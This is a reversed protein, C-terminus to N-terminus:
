KGISYAGYGAMGFFVFLVPYRFWAGGKNLVEEIINGVAFFFLIFAPFFLRDAHPFMYDGILFYATGLVLAMVLYARKPSDRKVWGALFIFFLVPMGLFADMIYKFYGARLHVYTIKLERSMLPTISRDKFIEGYFPSLPNGTHAYNLLCWPLILAAYVAASVVVLKAAEAMGTKKTLLSYALVLAPFLLILLGNYKTGFAFASFVASAYFWRPNKDAIWGALCYFVASTFLATGIDIKASPAMDFFVGSTLVTIVCLLGATRSAIKRAACYVVLCALLGLFVHLHNIAIENALSMVFMDLMGVIQPYSSFAVIKSLDYITHHQIYYKLPTMIHNLADASTVPLFSLVIYMASTLVILLTLVMDLRRLAPLRYGRLPRGSVLLYVALATLIILMGWFIGSYILGLLGVGFILLSFFGVGFVTDLLVKDLASSARNLGFIRNFLNGLAYAPMLTLFGVLLASM